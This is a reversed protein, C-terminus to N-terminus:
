QSSTAFLIEATRGSRTPRRFSRGTAPDIRTELRGLLVLERCRASATQHSLGTVAEVEDRTLGGPHQQVLDLIRRQLSGASPKISNAAAESTSSHRVHPPTGGFLNYQHPPTTM